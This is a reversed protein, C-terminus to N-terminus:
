RFNAAYIERPPIGQTLNSPIELNEISKVHHDYFDYFSRADKKSQCFKVIEITNRLPYKLDPIVPFYKRMVEENFNKFDYCVVWLHKDNRILQSLRIMKKYIDGKAGDGTLEDIFIHYDRYKSLIKREFDEYSPNMYGDFPYVLLEINKDNEFFRRLRLHQLSDITTQGGFQSPDIGFAELGFGVTEGNTSVFM